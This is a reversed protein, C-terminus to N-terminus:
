VAIIWESKKKQIQSMCYNQHQGIARVSSFTKDCNSCEYTEQRPPQLLALHDEIDAEGILQWGCIDCVVVVSPSTNVTTPLAEILPTHPPLDDDTPPPPTQTNTTKTDANRSTYTTHKAITHQYLADACLFLKPPICESCVLEDDVSVSVPVSVPFASPHVISNHKNNLVHTTYVHTRAGQLKLYCIYTLLLYKDYM